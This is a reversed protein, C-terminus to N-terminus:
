RHLKLRMPNATLLAGGKTVAVITITHTPGRHAVRGTIAGTTRNLHLGKPLKGKWMRFLAIDGVGAVTPRIAVRKGSRVHPHAPYSISTTGEPNVVFIFSAAAKGTTSTEAIRLPTPLAVPSTPKGAIVGTRPDLRTGAPLEGCVLEYMTGTVPANTTPAIAIRSGVSGINQAAYQLTQADADVRTTFQSSKSTGDAFRAQITTVWSGAQSTVGFLVGYTRDLQMGPALAGATVTFSTAKGLGRTNPAMTLQSGVTSYQNPYLTGNAALCPADIGADGTNAALAGNTGTGAGNSTGAVASVPTAPPAPIPKSPTSGVAVPAATGQSPKAGATPKKAPAPAPIDFSTPTGDTTVPTPNFGVSRLTITHQGDVLGTVTFAGGVGGTPATGGPRTWAGSDIQYEIGQVTAPNAVSYNVTVQGGLVGIPSGVVTPAGPAPYYAFDACPFILNGDNNIEIAIQLTGPTEGALPVTASGPGSGGPVDVSPNASNVIGVSFDTVGSGQAVWNVNAQDGSVTVTCSTLSPGVGTVSGTGPGTFLTAPIYVSSDTVTLVGSSDVAFTVTGYCPDYQGGNTFTATLGSFARTSCDYRANSLRITGSASSGVVKLNQLGVTASSGQGDSLTLSGSAFDWTTDAKAPTALTLGGALMLSVTVASIIKKM